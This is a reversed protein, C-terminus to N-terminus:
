RPECPSRPSLPPARDGHRLQLADHAEDDYGRRNSVFVLTMLGAGLGFTLIAGLALAALGHNSIAVEGIEFWIWVAVTTSAVLLGILVAITLATRM